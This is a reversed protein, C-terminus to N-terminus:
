LEGKSLKIKKPYQKQLHECLVIMNDILKQVIEDEKLIIIEFIDNEDVVKIASKDINLIANVTTYVISSVSACVIDKGYEGGAHGTLKIKNNEYVIKIM